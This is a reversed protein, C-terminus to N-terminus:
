SLRINSIMAHFYNNTLILRSGLYLFASKSQDKRSIKQTNLRFCEKYYNFAMEFELEEEFLKAMSGVYDASTGDFNLSLRECMELVRNLYTIALQKDGLKLCCRVINVWTDKFRRKSPSLMMGCSDYARKYYKLANTFDKMSKYLNAITWATEVRTPHHIPLCHAYMEDAQIYFSFTAEKDKTKNKLNGCNWLLNAKFVSAGSNANDLIQLGREYCHLARDYEGRDNYVSGISNMSRAIRIDNDGFTHRRIELAKEFMELAKQLESDVMHKEAGSHYERTRLYHLAGIQNYVESIDPHDKPLTDLLTQFYTAARDIANMENMLLRGFYIMPSYIQLQDKEANLFDMLTESGEDTATLILKGMHLTEDVECVDIRFVAGLSFLVENESAFISQRSIDAFTVTQLKPDAKITLSVKIMDERLSPSSSFGLSVREDRSTSLFGNTSILSGIKTKLTDFEEKPMQQGRYVTLPESEMLLKKGDELQACLDIIFFRFIYLLDIDETRLAKNLLKYLFSEDTYYKIAEKPTYSTRFKEIKKLEDKNHRYYAACHNLMENKAQEDAPMKRLVDTLLQHWLFSASEKSLDRTSKQTHDFLHFVADQQEILKM